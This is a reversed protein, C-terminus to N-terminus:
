WAPMGPVGVRVRVLGPGAGGPAIPLDGNTMLVTGHGAPGAGFTVSLPTDFHSLEEADTVIPTVAGSTPDIRVLPSSALLSFGPIAAYVAGRADMAIGDVTPVAFPATVPEIGGPRGDPEIRIKLVMGRETNAVYLEDPPRFVIGNAGPLAIGFPNGPLPALLADSIWRGFAAGRRSRWITGTSDTVYLSGRRDFALGNPFAIDGEAPLRELVAADASIRWVGQTAPDASALAAYLTGAPDVALGLLGPAGSASAPLIAFEVVHGDRTLKLIQNITEAGGIQRNGVFVEGIPNVAVGEPRNGAALSLVTAVQGSDASARGVVHDLHVIGGVSLLALAFLRVFGSSIPKRTYGDM